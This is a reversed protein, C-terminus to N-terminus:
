AIASTIFSDVKDWYEDPSDYMSGIHDANTSYFHKECIIEDFLAEVRKIDILGDNRGHIVLIPTNLSKIRSFLSLDRRTVKLFLKLYLLMFPQLLIWPYKVRWRYVRQMMEYFDPAPSDAVVAAVRGDSSNLATNIATTAGMSTGFLIVRYQRNNTKELFDIWASIDKADSYGLGCIGESQGHGRLNPVLINCGYSQFHNIFSALGQANSGYGHLAVLLINSDPNSIFYAYLKKKDNSQISLEEFTLDVNERRSGKKGLVNKGSPKVLISFVIAALVADILIFAVLCITIVVFAM